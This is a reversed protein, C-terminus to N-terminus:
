ERVLDKEASIDTLLQGTALEATELEGLRQQDAAMQDATFPLRSFRGKRDRGVMETCAEHLNGTPGRWTADIAVGDDTRRQPQLFGRSSKIQDLFEDLTRFAHRKM